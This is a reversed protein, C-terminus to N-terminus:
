GTLMDSPFETAVSWSLSPGLLPPIVLDTVAVQASCGPSPGPLTFFDERFDHPGSSLYQTNLLILQDGKYIRGFMGRPDLNAM